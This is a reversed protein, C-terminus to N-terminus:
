HFGLKVLRAIREDIGSIDAVGVESTLPNVNCIQIDSPANTLSDIKCRNNYCTHMCCYRIILLLHERQRYLSIALLLLDALFFRFTKKLRQTDPAKSFSQNFFFRQNKFAIIPCETM